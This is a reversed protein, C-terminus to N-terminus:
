LSQEMEHKDLFVCYDQLIDLLDQYSNMRNMKDKYVTSYYMGTLYHPALGRMEAIGLHEGKLEILKRAHKLCYDFREEKSAQVDGKGHLYNDIDKILFPNGVLGRAIMVADCNTEQKMKIFDDVTKVDGNGIVPISLNEKLTKIHSWDSHGEYFQSRTRAHLAIASVGVKELKKALSLYNMNDATYGLRMKVTVPKEVNEIIEKVLDVTRNENLMLSSGSGTKVVKNVPCGMNIDIIDCNTQKDMVKAAYVMSSPDSGFLQLAVPHFDDDLVLMDLTRKNNYFIAKDSVMETYVLGAGFEFCLERFAGNSIGAMPAVIIPSNIKLNKIQM